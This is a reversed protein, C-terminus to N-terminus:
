KRVVTKKAGMTTHTAIKKSPVLQGFRYGIMEAVIMIEVFEKGSYIGIKKGVMNPLVIMDRCHTKLKGSGTEVKDLFIKEQETFGRTMKRRERSPLLKALDEISMAKLEELTKGKFTFGKEEAM